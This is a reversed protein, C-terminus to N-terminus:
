EKGLKNIKLPYNDKVMRTEVALRIYKALSEGVSKAADRAQERWGKPVRISVTDYVKQNYRDKVVSSTRGM